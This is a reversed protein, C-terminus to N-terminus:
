PTARLAASSQPSAHTRALHPQAEGQVSALTAAGTSTPVSESERSGMVQAFGAALNAMDVHKRPSRPPDGAASMLLGPNHQFRHVRQSAARAPWPRTTRVASQEAVYQRAEVARLERDHQQFWAELEALVPDPAGAHHGQVGPVPSSEGVRQSITLSVSPRQRQQRQLFPSQWSSSTTTASAWPM